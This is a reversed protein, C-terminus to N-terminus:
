LGVDPYKFVAVLNETNNIEQKDLNETHLLLWDSIHIWYMFHEWQIIIPTCICM